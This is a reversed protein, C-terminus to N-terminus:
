QKSCPMNFCYCFSLMTKLFFYQSFLVGPLVLSPCFDYLHNSFHQSLPSLLRFFPPQTLTPLLSQTLPPILCSIGSSPFLYINLPQQTDQGCIDERPEPVTQGRWLQTTLLKLLALPCAPSPNGTWIWPGWPESGGRCEARGQWSYNSVWQAGGSIDGMWLRHAQALSSLWHCPVWLKGFM